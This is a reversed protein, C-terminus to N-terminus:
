AQLTVPPTVRWDAALADCTVTTEVPPLPVSVRVTVSEALLVSVATTVKLELPAVLVAGDEAPVEAVAHWVGLVTAGADGVTLAANEGALTPSFTADM